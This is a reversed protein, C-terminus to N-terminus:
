QAELAPEAIQREAAWQPKCSTIAVPSRDAAIAGKAQPITAHEFLGEFVDIVNKPLLGTAGGFEVVGFLGRPEQEQLMEVPEFLVFGGFGREVSLFVGVDEIGGVAPFARSRGLAPVGLEVVVGRHGAVVEPIEDIM